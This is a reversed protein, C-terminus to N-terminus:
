CWCWHIRYNEIFKILNFFIFPKGTKPTVSFFGPDVVPVNEHYAIIKCSYKMSILSVNKVKFSHTRSTYMLTPKFLIEKTDVEYKAFDSIASVKLSINKETKDIITNEPELVCDEYAVDAREGALPPPPKDFVGLAEDGKKAKSDKKAGKKNAAALTEEEKRRVEEEAKRKVLWEYESKTVYKINKM